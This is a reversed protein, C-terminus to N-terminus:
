GVEPYHPYHCQWCLYRGGHTAPDVRPIQAPSTAGPAHCRGCFERDRPKEPRVLRPTDRHEDPTEHCTTCELMAHHSVAKLRAIEGHCAGCTSPLTPPEPAHPAHCEVCPRMPNHSIPEIQPFGTPRSPDYGHCRQCFNRERPVIPKIEVPDGTHAAAPGHCSECAVTQHRATTHTAAIDPHCDACAERGAFKIPLAGIEAVAAARYHGIEGFTPPVLLIRAAILGAVAIGFVVLLHTVQQPVRPPRGPNSGRDRRFRNRFDGLTM